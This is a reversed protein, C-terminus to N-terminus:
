TTMASVPMDWIRLSSNAITRATKRCMPTQTISTVCPNGTGDPIPHAGPTPNPQTPDSAIEDTSCIGDLGIHWIRGNWEEAPFDTKGTVGVRHNIVVDEIIGTGKSKFTLIMSRLEDETGFPTNHNTFWYVPDYGNGPYYSPRASNPVWILSFSKSLEDAQAELKSWGTVDWSDWYFGQLMVGEYNAPWGIADVSFSATSVAMAAALMVGKLLKM